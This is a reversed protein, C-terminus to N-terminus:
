WSCLGPGHCMELCCVTCCGVDHRVKYKQQKALQQKARARVLWESRWCHLVQRILHKRDFATAATNQYHRYLHWQQWATLAQRLSQM